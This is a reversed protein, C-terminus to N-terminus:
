IKGRCWGIKIKGKPLFGPIFPKIDLLPTNDFVDIHKVTLINREIKVLKVVSLGIRNPRKPYCTAFVGRETADLFPKAKLCYERLKHFRYLIIIHSFGNIDDLGPMFEKRVIIKGIATSRTPQIPTEKRCKFPTRIIGISQLKM